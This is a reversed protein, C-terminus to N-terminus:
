QAIVPQACVLGAIEHGHVIFKFDSGDDLSLQNRPSDPSHRYQGRAIDSGVRDISNRSRADAPKLSQYEPGIPMAAM